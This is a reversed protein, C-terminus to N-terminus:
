VWKTAGFRIKIRDANGVVPDPLTKFRSILSITLPRIYPIEMLPNMDDVRTATFGMWGFISM